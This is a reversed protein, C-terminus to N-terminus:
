GAQSQRASIMPALSPTITPRGSSGEGVVDPATRRRHGVLDERLESWGVYVTLAYALLAVNLATFLAVAPRGEALGVGASMTWTALLGLPVLLYPWPVATRGDVKPTRGFPIKAGTVAQRISTIVGALNVPLLLVNLAYVRLVDSRRYGLQRLDRAYLAFWGLSSLPLWPTMEIGPFGYGLLLVLGVNTGAISTLYHLRLLGEVLRGRRRDRRLLSVLKPLIILGGNAWRRRQIVLAGFDPPTASYALTAPYNDLTWGREVLDISSETDEIVTRDQIYRTIRYGREVDVEAIDDLASKRLLANAGVWFTAGFHAFGQHIVHQIDTTAGAIRELDSGAGPIARYPTQCVAVRENGPQEMDHVLRPAYGPLLLSDADLTLVYDPQPLEVDAPGAGAPLLHRRGQHTVERWRGGLLGIATNLNMAKNPEHSLNEYRKRQFCSLDAEFVALLSRHVLVLQEWTPPAPQRRLAVADAVLEDALSTLVQSSYFRDTHDGGQWRRAEADLWRVADDHLGALHHAAHQRQQRDSGRSRAAAEITHRLADAVPAARADLDRQIRAILEHTADLARRDGAETPEPPDDLLLTVRLHRYRQLAASVVTQEVTRLEEKYSPVLVTLAPTAGVVWRRLEDDDAPQHRQHRRLSGYRSIQHVLNGYLLFLVIGTFLAGTLLQGLTESAALTRVLDIALLAIVLTTFMLVLASLAVERGLSGPHM